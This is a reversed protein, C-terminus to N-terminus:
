RRQNAKAIIDSTTRQKLKQKPMPVFMTIFYCISMLVLTEQAAGRGSSKAGSWEVSYVNAVAVRFMVENEAGLSGEEGEGRM